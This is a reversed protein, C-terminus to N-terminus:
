REPTATAGDGSCCLARGGFILHITEPYTASMSVAEAVNALRLDCLDGVWGTEFDGGELNMCGFIGACSINLFALIRVPSPDVIFRKFAKFNGTADIEPCSDSESPETLAHIRGDNIVVDLKASAGPRTSCRAM